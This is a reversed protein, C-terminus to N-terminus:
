CEKKALVLSVSVLSDATHNKYLHEWNNWQLLTMRHDNYLTLIRANIFIITM